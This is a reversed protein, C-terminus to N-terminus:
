TRKLKLIALHPDDHQKEIMLKRIRDFHNYGAIFIGHPNNRISRWLSKDRYKEDMIMNFYHICQILIEADNHKACESYPTENRIMQFLLSFLNSFISRARQNGEADVVMFNKQHNQEYYLIMKKLVYDQLAKSTNPGFPTYGSLSFTDRLNTHTQLTQKLLLYNNYDSTPYKLFYQQTRLSFTNKYYEEFDLDTKVLATADDWSKCVFGLNVYKEYHDPSREPTSELYAIAQMHNFFTNALAVICSWSIQKMDHQEPILFKTATQLDGYTLNFHDSCDAPLQTLKGETTRWLFSYLVLSFFLSTAISHCLEFINKPTFRM